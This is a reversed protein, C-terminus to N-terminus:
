AKGYRWRVTGCPCQVYEGSTDDTQFVPKKCKLCVLFGLAVECADILKEAESKVIDFSHSARNGWSILLRDAERFAAIAKDHAAYKGVEGIQFCKPGDSILVALFDHAVRHDNKERHLYPLRLGLRQARIALEIDMIKRATNGAMDPAVDLRARAEDFTAAGKESVRIGVAPRDYPMLAAFKWEAAKLQQRLESYWEREHTFLLVQRGSFEQELLGVIMGRHNRDLSVVVDDLFLPRDSSTRKAMALFICLGLSNRHGESLTLRPSEQNVGHFRLQVDIAKDAAEPVCLRVDEVAEGPHLIAWMRQIDKSLADIVTQAEQRIETRVGDELSELYALLMTTKQVRERRLAAGLVAGGAENTARDALLDHMDPATGKQAIAADILPLVHEELRCLDEESCQARLDDASMGDLATFGGALSACGPEARWAKAADTSFHRKLETLSDCLRGRARKTAAAAAISAQLRGSELEIHARLQDSRVHQGCAPCSVEGSAGIKAAYSGASGLVELRESLLPEAANTLHSSCSRLTQIEDRLRSGAASELLHRRREEATFSDVRVALAKEVDHCWTTPDKASADAGCYKGHLARIREAIAADDAGGLADRRKAELAALAGQTASLKSEQEVAKRLQRLNEAAIELHGLGLLPLLASYKDGKTDQIFDSVENQRLVTQQYDWTQIAAADAGTSSSVGTRNITTVHESEDTFRIRVEAGRGEPTSTNLVGREQHKGSYEHSLHGIKGGRLVFEVADVFSSKGSGNEGYIVMSKGSPTIAASDAAGRFWALTIADIRM